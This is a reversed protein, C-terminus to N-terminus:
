QIFTKLEFWNIKGQQVLKKINKQKLNLKSTNTKIKVFLIQNEEFQIGDIPDGIYRFNDLSYPYNEPRLQKLAEETQEQQFKQTTLNEIKKNLPSIAARHVLTVGLLVGAIIGILFVWFTM